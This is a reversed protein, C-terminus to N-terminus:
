NQNKLIFCLPHSKEISVKLPNVSAEPNLTEPGQCFSSRKTSGERLGEM